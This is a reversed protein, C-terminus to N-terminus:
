TVGAPYNPDLTRAKEGNVETCAYAVGCRACGEGPSAPFGGAQIGLEALAFERALYGTSYQPKDLEVPRIFHTKPRNRPGVGRTMFFTGYRPRIGYQQEVGCAYIALQRYNSPVKAGTKLDVVVLATGMQLVLDIYGRVQVSGLSILFPLEIAPIGDPTVWVSVDTNHEWWDIFNQVMVPGTEQWRALAQPGSHPGSWFWDEPQFGSSRAEDGAAKALEELFVARADFETM